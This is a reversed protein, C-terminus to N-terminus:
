SKSPRFIRQMGAIEAVEGQFTGKELAAGLGGAAEIKQFAAWAGECLDQTLTEFGGAGAAPDDVAEIHSEDQLVLQTDRALRYSAVPKSAGCEGDGFRGTAYSYEM